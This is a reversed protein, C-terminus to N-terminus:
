YVEHGSWCSRHILKKCKKCRRYITAKGQYKEDHRRTFVDGYKSFTKGAEKIIKTKM